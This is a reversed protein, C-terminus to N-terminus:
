GLEIADADKTLRNCIALEGRRFAMAAARRLLTHAATPQRLRLQGAWLEAHEDSIRVDEGRAEIMRAAEPLAPWEMLFRLGRAFDAHGAAYAFARGEAEVDDFDALRRTFDKAREASLTREFSAWRAAQAADPEGSQDLFDIWVTEWDFDPEADRTRAGKATKTQPRDPGAAELLQGAEAVRGASLLRQAVEAAVAPTQLSEPPFTSWFVDIDGTADALQRILPVWGPSAGARESMLRLAAEAFAPSPDGLVIPLWETWSAPNDVMAEVLAEANRVDGAGVSLKGIDAAARVFVASLEGDKDRVRAGLRRALGMFPWLRDLAGIQDLGALRETILVRLGELDRVCTPRHRWSVRSRSSELSALRRDIEVALHNAGQEAALEMRLRRKLEPRTNAVAVLIAALREAGLGALNAATVKKLSAVTPSKM